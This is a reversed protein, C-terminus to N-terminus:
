ILFDLKLHSIIFLNNQNKFKNGKQFGICKFNCSFIKFYINFFLGGKISSKKGTSKLFLKQPMVHNFFVFYKILNEDM